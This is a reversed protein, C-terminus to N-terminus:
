ILLCYWDSDEEYVLYGLEVLRSRWTEILNEGHVVDDEDRYVWKTEIKMIKPKIKWSYSHLITHEM